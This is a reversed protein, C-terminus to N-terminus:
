VFANLLLPQMQKASMPKMVPMAPGSFCDFALAGAATIALEVDATSYGQRYLELVTELM